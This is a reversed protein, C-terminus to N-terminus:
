KTKNELKGSKWNKRVFYIIAFVLIILVSIILIWMKGKGFFLIDGVSASLSNRATKVEPIIPVVNDPIVEEQQLSTIESTVESEVEPIIESTVESIVEPTIEPTPTSAPKPVVNIMYDGNISASGVSVGEGIIDVETFSISAVGASGAKVSVTLLIKGSTTCSPIGILFHPNSCTPLSQAMVGDVVVINQCSLNNFVLMGEVACVKSTSANFGVSTSFVNGVTKTLNAPSVYLSAGTANITGAFGLVSLFVALSLIIKIKTNKMNKNKNKIIGM